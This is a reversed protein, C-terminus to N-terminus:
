LMGVELRYQAPAVFGLDRVGTSDVPMAIVADVQRAANYIQGAYFGVLLACLAILAVWRLRIGQRKYVLGVMQGAYLNSAARYRGAVAQQGWTNTNRGLM